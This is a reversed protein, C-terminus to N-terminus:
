TGNFVPEYAIILHLFLKLGNTFIYIYINESIHVTDVLKTVLTTLIILSIPYLQAKRIKINERTVILPLIFVIPICDM